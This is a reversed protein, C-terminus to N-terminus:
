RRWGTSWARLGFGRRWLRAWWRRWTRRDVNRGDHVLKGSLRLFFKIPSFRFLDSEDTFWISNNAIYGTDGDRIEAAEAHVVALGLVAAAVLQGPGGVLTIFERRRM